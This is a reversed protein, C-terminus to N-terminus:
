LIVYFPEFFLKFLLRGYYLLLLFLVSKLHFVVEVFKIIFFLNSFLKLQCDIWKFFLNFWISLFNTFFIFTNCKILFFETLYLFLFKLNLNFMKLVCSLFLVKIFLVKLKMIFHLWFINNFILLILLSM